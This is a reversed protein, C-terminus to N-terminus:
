FDGALREIEYGDVRLQMGTKVLKGFIARGATFPYCGFGSECLFERDEESGNYHEASLIVIKGKLEMGLANAMKM